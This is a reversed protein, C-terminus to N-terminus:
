QVSLAVRFGNDSSSLAALNRIRKSSKLDTQFDNWSGGRLWCFLGGCDQTWEWVNGSMDYLGWWNPDKGKVPHTTGNSNSRFWAVQEANEGGCYASRNGGYSCAYEWEVETPLRYKKGTLESLKVLYAQTDNWSVNEVPCDDGCQSFRSPNSGMISRWQGQTVPAVGLAFSQISVVENPLNDSFLVRSGFPLYSGFPMYSGSPLLAMEPCNICDKFLKQNTSLTNAEVSNASSVVPPKTPKISSAGSAVPRSSEKITALQIKAASVFIGRPYEDLYAQYSANSNGQQAAQWAADEAARKLQEELQKIKAKAQIAFQGNPYQDLYAQYGSRQNGQSAARWNQEEIAAYESPKLSPQGGSTFPPPVLYATSKLNGYQMPTQKPTTSNEVDSSVQEFARVIPLDTSKMRRLQVALAQTYPSNHSKGDDATQGEETAYAILMGRSQTQIRSLGRTSAGRKGSNAYPTNRCADLVLLKIDAGSLADVIEDGNIAAAKLIADGQIQPADVPLLYSHRDSSQIGHGSYYVMAVEAGQAQESFEGLATAMRLRNADTILTVSDFGLENKLIGGILKADSIPNILAQENQYAANGIVLAVRKAHASSLLCISVLAILWSAMRTFRFTQM